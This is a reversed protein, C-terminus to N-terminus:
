KRKPVKGKGGCDPCEAAISSLGGFIPKSVMGTGCCKGCMEKKVEEALIDEEQYIKV